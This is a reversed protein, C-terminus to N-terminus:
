TRLARSCRRFDAPVPFRAKRLWAIFDGQSKFEMGKVAGLGYCAMHLKRKETISSDLQRVAGAAANRPNAFLPEESKEREKNLKEFEVIDMYVEGRIDIEDPIDVGEIM